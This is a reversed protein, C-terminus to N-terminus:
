ERAEVHIIGKTHFAKFVFAFTMDYLIDEYAGDRNQHQITVFGLDRGQDIRYAVLASKMGEQWTIVIGGHEIRGAKRIDDLLWADHGVAVVYALPPVPGDYNGRFLFPWGSGDYNAYPNEGYPHAKPDPPILVLGDPYVRRFESFPIVRSPLRKLAMGTMKGVIAVALFQQWWSETQFDYM